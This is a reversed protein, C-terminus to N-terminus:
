LVSFNVVQTIGLIVRFQLTKFNIVLYIMMYGLRFHHDNNMLILVNRLAFVHFFRDFNILLKFSLYWPFSM